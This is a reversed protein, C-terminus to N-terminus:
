KIVQQRNHKKAWHLPTQKRKDQKNVSAGTSVLLDCMDVRGERAAYFIATQGTNDEMNVDCGAEILLKAIEFHGERNSQIIINGQQMIFRLKDM